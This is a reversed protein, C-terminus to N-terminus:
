QYLLSYGLMQQPDELQIRHNYPRHPPLKDSAEKSFIDAYDKYQSPLVYCLWQLKTKSEQQEELEKYREKEEIIQDIKYLSTSFFTNEKRHLNTQFAEGSIGYIDINIEQVAPRCLRPTTGSERSMVKGQLERNM